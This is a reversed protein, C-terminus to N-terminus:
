PDAIHPTHTTYTHHIHPTTICMSDYMELHTTYMELHTTYMEITHPLIPPLTTSVPPYARSVDFPLLFMTDPVESPLTAHVPPWSFM